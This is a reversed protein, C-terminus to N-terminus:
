STSLSNLLVTSLSSPMLRRESTLPTLVEKLLVQTFVMFIEYEKAIIVVGQQLYGWPYKIYDM